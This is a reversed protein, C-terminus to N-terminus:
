RPLKWASFYAAISLLISVLAFLLYGDTEGLGLLFQALGMTLFSVITYLSLITGRTERTAKENM